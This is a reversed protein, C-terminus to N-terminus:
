QPPKAAEPEAAPAAVAPPLVGRGGSAGRGGFGSAGRGGRGRGFAPPAPKASVLQAYLATIKEKQSADAILYRHKGGAGPTFKTRGDELVTITGPESLKFYGDDPHVSYLAAAMGPVPADYPMPKFAKYADVIPHSTTYAFDKEISSGPYPLSEGVESGVAIIPTPWDAFLKKAAGIDTRINADAAGNPYSGAAIVLYKVKATIQPKAGYLQMLQVINTAPGDVVVVANLDNQALLMNRMTVACDATDIISSIQAPYAPKGEPTRKAVVADIIPTDERMKGNDALGVKDAGGGFGTGGVPPGGNYFNTLAEEAQAAKLNSKTISVSIVRTEGKASMARLLALTLFSDINNGFDSDFTVGTPPKVTGRGQM